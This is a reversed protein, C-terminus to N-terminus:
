RPSFPHNPGMRREEARRAGYWIRDERILRDIGEEPSGSTLCSGPVWLPSARGCATWLRDRDWGAVVEYDGKLGRADHDGKLEAAGADAHAFVVESKVAPEEGQGEFPKGFIDRAEAWFARELWGFGYRTDGGVFITELSKRLDVLEASKSRVMIYGAVGVPDGSGEGLRWRTNVHETERLTGGVAADVALKIATGAGTGPLWRRM